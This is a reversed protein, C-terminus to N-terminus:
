ICKEIGRHRPNLSQKSIGEELCFSCPNCNIIWLILRFWMGFLLPPLFPVGFKLCFRGLLRIVSLGPVMESGAGNCRVAVPSLCSSVSNPFISECGWIKTNKIASVM